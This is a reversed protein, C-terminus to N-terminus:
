PATGAMSRRSVQTIMCACEHLSQLACDSDAPTLAPLQARLKGLMICTMQWADTVAACCM